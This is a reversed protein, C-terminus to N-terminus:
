ESLLKDEFEIFFSELDLNYRKIKSLKFYFYNKIKYSIRKTKNINKYFFLEIFLNLNEKIFDNSIYLRNKIIEILFEEIGFTSINKEKEKLYLILEILFSPSNYQNIYDKSLTTYIEEQFYKNVILKVEELTLSLKFELCRSKLTNPINYGSSKTLLFFLNNNPEEISKLLANSSSINLNEINEILVFREKNNFSSRNQFQIMERIQDIDINKKDNKKIIKYINPHTNNNILKNIDINDNSEILIHHLFKNVLLSKGIGKIGTLLLKNPLSNNKYLTILENYIIKHGIINNKDIMM